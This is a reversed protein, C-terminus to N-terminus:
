AELLIRPKVAKLDHRSVIVTADFGHYQLQQEFDEDNADFVRHHTPGMEIVFAIPNGLNDRVLLRTSHIKLPQKLHNHSELIM